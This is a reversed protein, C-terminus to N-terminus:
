KNGPLHPFDDIGKLFTEPLSYPNSIEALEASSHVYWESPLGENLAAMQENIWDHDGDLTHGAHIAACYAERLDNVDMALDADFPDLQEQDHAEIYRDIFKQDDVIKPVRATATWNQRCWAACEVVAGALSASVLTTNGYEHNIAYGYVKM